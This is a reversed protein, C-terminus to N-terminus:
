KSRFSKRRKNEDKTKEKHCEVCLVQLKGFMMNNLYSDWDIQRDGRPLTPSLLSVPVIPKIHDVVFPKRKGKQAEKPFSKDCKACYVKNGKTAAQIAERREVSWYWVKRAASIIYIHKPKAM